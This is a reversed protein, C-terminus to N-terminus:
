KVLLFREIDSANGSQARLQLRALQELQLRENRQLKGRIKARRISILKFHFKAKDWGVLPNEFNDMKTRWHDWFREIDHQFFSDSLLDSNFHWFDPGRLVNALPGIDV